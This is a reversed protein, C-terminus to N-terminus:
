PGVETLGIAYVFPSLRLMYRLYLKKGFREIEREVLSRLEALRDKTYAGRENVVEIWVVGRRFDLRVGAVRFGRVRLMDSLEKVFRSFEEPHNLFYQAGDPTFEVSFPPSPLRFRRRLYWSDWYRLYSM